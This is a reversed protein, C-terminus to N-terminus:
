DVIGMEEAKELTTIFQWTKRNKIDSVVARTVGYLDGIEEQTMDSAHALYFISEVEIPKLKVNGLGHIQAHRMNEEKTMWQLNWVSNNAKNGDMHNVEPKGEFNPLFVTAVLRHLYFTVSDDGSDPRLKIKMYGSHPHPTPKLFKKSIESFVRGATSIRYSSFGELKGWKEVKNRSLRKGESVQNSNFNKVDRAFESFSIM